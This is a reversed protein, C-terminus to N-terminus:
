SPPADGTVDPVPPDAAPPAAPPAAPDPEGSGNAEQQQQQQQRQQQQMMHQQQQQFFNAQMQQQYHMQLLQQYQAQSQQVSAAGGPGFPSPDGYAPMGPPMGYAGAAGSMSPDNMFGMGGAGMGYPSPNTHYQAAAFNKSLEEYSANNNPAPAPAPVQAPIGSPAAQSPESSTDSPKNLAPPVASPDSGSGGEPKPAAQPEAIDGNNATVDAEDPAPPDSAAPPPPNTGHDLTATFDDQVNLPTTAAPVQAPPQNPGSNKLYNNFGHKVGGGASRAM